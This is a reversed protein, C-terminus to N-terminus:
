QASDVCTPDKLALGEFTMVLKLPFIVLILNFLSVHLTFHEKSASAFAMMSPFGFSRNSFYFLPIRAFGSEEFCRKKTPKQFM